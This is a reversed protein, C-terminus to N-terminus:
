TTAERVAFFAAGLAPPMREKMFVCFVSSFSIFSATYGAATAWAARTGSLLPKMCVTASGLPCGRRGASGMDVGADAGVALM